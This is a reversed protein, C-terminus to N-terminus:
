GFLELAGDEKCMSGLFTLATRLLRHSMTREFRLRYKQLKESYGSSGTRQLDDEERDQRAGGEVLEEGLDGCSERVNGGKEGDERYGCDAAAGDSRVRPSDPGRPGAQREGHKEQVPPPEEESVRQRLQQPHVLRRGPGDRDLHSHLYSHLM